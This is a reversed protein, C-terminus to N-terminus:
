DDEESRCTLFNLVFEAYPKTPSSCHNFLHTLPPGSARCRCGKTYHSQVINVVGRLTM